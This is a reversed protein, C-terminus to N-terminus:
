QNASPSSLPTIKVGYSTTHGGNTRLMGKIPSCDSYDSGHAAKIYHVDALLNNTPDFGQWGFGPIYAEAWAHMVATGTLNLGQNLYGSVYRCPIKNIRAVGIFLHTFDQCVGRGIELVENATTCVHTPEPDFELLQYLHNNLQQLYEYVTQSEQRFLLKTYHRPAIRTFHGLELFLHHELYFGHEQLSAQEQEITLTSGYPFPVFRKEVVAKMCFEFNKFTRASRLCAVEFGFPNQHQFVEAELSNAYSCSCVRQTHDQCPLVLFSFFAERVAEEYTNQTQYVVEYMTKM